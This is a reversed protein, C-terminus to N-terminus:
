RTRIVFEASRGSSLRSTRATVVQYRHRVQGRPWKIVFTVAGKASTRGEDMTKWRGNVLMKRKVVVGARAPTVRVALRIEAGPRPKSTSVKIGVRPSVSTSAQGAGAARHWTGPVTARWHSSASLGPVKFAARGSGDIAKSGVTKWRTSGRSRRQLTVKTGGALKARSQVRVTVPVSVGAVRKAPAALTVSTPKPAVSRAYARLTTWSADDVGSLHWIAVGGLRYEKVFAMRASVGRADIWWAEHKVTCSTRRGKSDRGRYKVKFTAVQEATKRDYRIDPYRGAKATLYAVATATTFSRTGPVGARPCKGTRAPSGDAKRATWLRGYAPMGVRIRESPFVKVAYDLSRRIFALPSIPGPRSVSYDYTMIRLSDVSGAIGAFDYVWYGSGRGRRGDYIPPAAVALRKGRAHLAAGLETIFEVWARRTRAWTSTGDVFAFREYDLEIGDYDNAQVLAVLQTVHRRRASADALVAAMSRAPSGDAVSPIVRIGRARLRSVVRAVTASDVSTSIRTVKRSARVTHWFPSAESFVDANGEVAALSASASWSPLWGSVLRRAPVEAASATRDGLPLGPVLLAIALLMALLAAAARAPRRGWRPVHRALAM